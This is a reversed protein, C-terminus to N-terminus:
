LKAVPRRTRSGGDAIVGLQRAARARAEILRRRAPSLSAVLADRALGYRYRFRMGDVRLLRRDCFGDLREVLDSSDLDLVTALLEPDFPQELAAATLLIRYSDPGEARCRAILLESVARHLDPGPADAVLHSVLEPWGATREHLELIGLPSLDAATLPELRVLDDVPLRRLRHDPGMSEVQITAVLMAPVDTCRRRLYPLAALTGADAHHLDDLILVLPAHRRILEATGELATLDEAAQVPSSPALEPFVRSLGPLGAGELDVDALAGRLADALPV